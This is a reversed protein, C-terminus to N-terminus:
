TRAPGRQWGRARRRAIETVNSRTYGVVPEPPPGPKSVWEEVELSLGGEEPSM